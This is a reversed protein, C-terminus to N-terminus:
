RGRTPQGLARKVLEAYPGNGGPGSLFARQQALMLERDRGVALLAIVAHLEGDPLRVRRMVPAKAVSKPAPETADLRAREKDSLQRELDWPGSAERAVAQARESHGSRELLL